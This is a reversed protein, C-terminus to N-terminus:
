KELVQRIKECVEDTQYPKKLIGSVGMLLLKSKKHPDLFGSALLIKVDPNIEQLEEFLQIGNLKPLGIDSLIVSIHNNNENYVQLATEGDHATLVTYGQDQLIQVLVECLLKEDEVVLITVSSDNKKHQIKYNEAM